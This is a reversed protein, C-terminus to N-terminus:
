GFPSSCKAVAAHMTNMKTPMGPFKIVIIANARQLFTHACLLKLVYCDEHRMCPNENHGNMRRGKEDITKAGSFRNESGTRTSSGFYVWPFFYFYFKPPFSPCVSILVITKSITRTQSQSPPSSPPPTWPIKRWCWTAQVLSANWRFIDNRNGYKESTNGWVACNISQLPSEARSFQYLQVVVAVFLCIWRMWDTVFRSRASVFRFIWCISTFPPTNMGLM